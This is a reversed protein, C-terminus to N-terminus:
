LLRHLCRLGIASWELNELPIEILTMASRLMRCRARLAESAPDGGWLFGARPGPQEAAAYFSLPQLSEWKYVLWLAEPSDSVQMDEQSLLTGTDSQRAMFYGACLNTVIKDCSSCLQASARLSRKQAQTIAASAARAIGKIELM